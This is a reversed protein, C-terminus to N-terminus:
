GAVVSLGGVLRLLRLILLGFFLYFISEIIRSKVRDRAFIKFLEHGALMLLIVGFHSFGHLWGEFDGGVADFLVIGNGAVYAAAARASQHDRERRLRVRSVGPERRFFLATSVLLGLWGALFFSLPIWWGGEGDGGPDADGSIAGAFILGTAIVFAALFLAAPDNKRQCIDVRYRVGFIAGGIQGPVKVLAYGMVLYFLVYIGAVSADALFLVSYAIVIMAAGVALRVMGIAANERLHLQHFASLRTNVMGIVATIISVLFIFAEDGDM